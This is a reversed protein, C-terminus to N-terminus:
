IVKGRIFGMIPVAMLRFAMEKGRKLVVDGEHCQRKFADPLGCVSYFPMMTVYELSLGAVKVTTSVQTSQATTVATSGKADVIEEVTEANENKQEKKEKM